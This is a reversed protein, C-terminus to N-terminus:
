IKEYGGGPHRGRNYLYVFLGLLAALAIISGIVILVIYETKFGSDTDVNCSFGEYGDHCQCYYYGSESLLCDGNGSCGSPCTGNIWIAFTKGNGVVGFYWMEDSKYDSFSLFNVTQNSSEADYGRSTNISPVQGLRAYIAPATSADDNNQVSINFPRNNLPATFYQWTGMALTYTLPAVATKEDLVVVSQCNPGATANSCATYNYFLTFQPAEANSRLRQLVASAPLTLTGFWFGPTPVDLDLTTLHEFKDTMSWDFTNNYPVDSARLSFTVPTISAGGVSKQQVLFQVKSLGTPFIFSFYVIRNLTFEHTTNPVLSDNSRQSCDPGYSGKDCKQESYVSVSYHTAKASYVGIYYDGPSPHFSSPNNYRRSRRSRSLVPFIDSTSNQYYICSERNWQEPNRYPSLNKQFCLTVNISASVILPSGLEPVVLKIIDVTHNVNGEFHQTFTDGFAFVFCCFLFLLQLPNMKVMKVVM